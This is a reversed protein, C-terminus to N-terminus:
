NSIRRYNPEDAPHSGLRVHDRSLAFFAAFFEFVFRLSKRRKKRRAIANAKM